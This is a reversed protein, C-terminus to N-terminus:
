SGRVSKSFGGFLKQFGGGGRALELVKLRTQVSRVGGNFAVFAQVTSRSGRSRVRRALLIRFRVDM